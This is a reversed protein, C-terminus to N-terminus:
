NNQTPPIHTSKSVIADFEEISSCMSLFTAIRDLTDLMVYPDRTLAVLQASVADGFLARETSKGITHLARVVLGAEASGLGYAAAAIGVVVGLERDEDTRYLNMQEALEVFPDHSM